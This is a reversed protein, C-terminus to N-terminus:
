PRTSRVVTSAGVRGASPLESQIPASAEPSVGGSRLSVVVAAALWPALFWDVAYASAYVGVAVPVFVWESSRARLKLVTSVLMWVILMLGVIGLRLFLEVYWNHAQVGTMGGGITRRLFGSGFPEGVLVTLPGRAIANSILAQWSDARWDLTDSNLASDVVSSRLTWTVFALSAGVSLLVFARSSARGEKASILVATMSLIGAIWVSRHQSILVVGFFVLSSGAFRRRGKGSGSTRMFMVTGTCLLLAVAQSSILVRGARYGADGFSVRTSPGGIGYRVAHYLAVLALAWGLVLSCKHLRLRDPRTALAWTMAFYFWLIGRAENTAAGLGFAATGRLLSIGILLGLFLWPVLWGQLNAKLQTFELLGVVFLILTIVDIPSVALGAPTILPPPHPVEWLPLVILAALGIGAPPYRRVLGVLLAFWVIMTLALVGSVALELM